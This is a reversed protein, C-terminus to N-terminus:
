KKHSTRQDGAAVAQCRPQHAKAPKLSSLAVKVPSQWPECHFAKKQEHQLVTFTNEDDELAKLMVLTRAPPRRLSHLIGGATIVRQVGLDTGINGVIFRM